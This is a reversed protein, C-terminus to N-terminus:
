SWAGSGLMAEAFALDTATTIKMARDEGAVVRVAVDPVFREVLGADDGVATREDPALAAGEAHARRLVELTFAQPTQVAVLEARDVTEVVTGAPARKITDAVAVGPLVAEAGSALANLLREILGIPALPRAADHVLATADGDVDALEALGAAVSAQRTVGGDICEAPLDAVLEAVTDRLGVPCTM